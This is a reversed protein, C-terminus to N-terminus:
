NCSLPHSFYYRKAWGSLGMVTTSWSSLSNPAETLVFNGWHGFSFQSIPGRVTILVQPEEPTILIPVGPCRWDWNDQSDSGQPRFRLTCDRKWYPGKCVPCPAKPPKSAQPCDQKLHGQKRCYYCTRGNEGPDRQANKRLSNWLPDLLWAPAKTKQRTRKQRVKRRYTPSLLSCM